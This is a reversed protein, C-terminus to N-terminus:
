VKMYGKRVQGVYSRLITRIHENEEEEVTASLNRFIKGAEVVGMRNMIESLFMVTIRDRCQQDIDTNIDM